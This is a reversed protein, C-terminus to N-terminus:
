DVRMIKEKSVGLENFSIITNVSPVEIYDIDINNKIITTKVNATIGSANNVVIAMVNNDIEVNVAGNNISINNEQSLDVLQSDVCSTGYQGTAEITLNFTGATIDWDCSTVNQIDITM